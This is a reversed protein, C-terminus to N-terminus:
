KPEGVKLAKACDPGYIRYGKIMDFPGQTQANADAVWVARAQDTGKGCEFCKITLRSRAM